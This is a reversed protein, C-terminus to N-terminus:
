KNRDKKNFWALPSVTRLKKLFRQSRRERKMHSSKFETLRREMTDKAADLAVRADWDHHDVRILEGQLKMNIEAKFVEGHRHHQTTKAIEVFAEVPSTEGEGTNDKVNIFKDLSSIKEEIYTRLSPTLEFNTAKIDIRM